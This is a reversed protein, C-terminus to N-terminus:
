HKIIKSTQTFYQNEIQVFYIGQSLSPLNLRYNDIFVEKLSIIVKGTLDLVNINVRDNNSSKFIIEDEFPNPFVSVREEKLENTSSTFEYAKQADLVYLGNQMDVAVLNKSPLETYASWVGVYNGVTNNETSQYHTDFYGTRIPAKPNSVDYIQIGDEYYSIVVRNNPALFPNHPTAKSGSTFTCDLQIDQLNSVDLVKIPLSKPVEDLMILTKGNPMLLSSHNYGNFPYQTFKTLEIFKSQNRDFYFVNLGSYGFSGYITDNRVFMDHAQAIGPFDESVSRVRTPKTPDSLSYLVLTGNGGAIYMNSKEIWITHGREFLKNDDYVVKVSDPLYSLDLIQLSNPSSDDSVCYLYNKYIKYERWVTKDRRGAVFDRQIPNAPNTIDIIHVGDSAGVIAYEKGKAAYGWCSSYRNNIAPGSSPINTDDWRGLLSVNQSQYTPSQAQALNVCFLILLFSFYKM